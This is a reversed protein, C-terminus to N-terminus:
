LFKNPRQQRSRNRGALSNCGEGSVARGSKGPVAAGGNVGASTILLTGASGATAAAGGIATLTAPTTGIQTPIDVSVGGRLSFALKNNVATSGNVATSAVAAGPTVTPATADSLLMWFTRM